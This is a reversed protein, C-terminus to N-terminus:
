VSVELNAKPGHQYQLLMFQEQTCDDVTAYANVLLQPEPYRDLSFISNAFEIHNKYIHADALSMVLSGLPRELENAILHMLCTHFIIDSPLGVIVDSSRMNCLMNLEGKDGIYLQFGHFCPLLAMDNEQAPNWASVYLRRSEPNVKAEEIVNRLQDIGQSNFDRWQAGYIPGLDGDDKAWANWYNCGAEQFESVNQYGKCFSIVEGLIGKLFMKRHTMIPLTGNSVDITLTKAFCSITGTGTREKNREIGNNLIDNVLAIYNQENIM